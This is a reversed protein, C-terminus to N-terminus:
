SLPLTPPPRLDPCPVPQCIGCAEISWPTQELCKILKINSSWERHIHRGIVVPGVVRADAEDLVRYAEFISKGTTFTDDLLLVRQGAVPRTVIIQSYGGPGGSYELPNPWGQFQSLQNVITRPADRHSSPVTAVHEIPGGLCSDLHYDLFLKLLAALRAASWSKQIPSGDKYNRLHHHLLGTHVSISIPVVLIDESDQNSNDCSYCLEYGEKVGTRCIPCVGAQEAPIPILGARLKELYPWPDPRNM